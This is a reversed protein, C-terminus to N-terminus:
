QNEAVNIIKDAVEMIEREHSSIIITHKEKMKQLLSNIKKINEIDLASTPEDMLIVKSGKLIAQALVLRQRQGGSLTSGKEGIMTNLGKPLTDVFEKLGVYDIVNNIKDLQLDKKALLLNDLITGRFLLPDQPVYSVLNRYVEIDYDRIDVEGFYIDGSTAQEYRYLMKLLTSKGSGSKGRLITIQNLVITNSYSTFIDKENGEYNFTVDKIEFGKERNLPESVDGSEELPIDLITDIRKFSVSAVALSKRFEVVAVVPEQLMYAYTVFVTIVGLTPTGNSFYWEGGIGYVIVQFLIMILVMNVMAMTVYLVAMKVQTNHYDTSKKHYESTAYGGANLARVSELGNLYEQSLSTMDAAKEQLKESLKRVKGQFFSTLIMLFPLVPVVLLTLRWDLVTMVILTVIITILSSIFNPIGNSLAEEVASVDISLKSLTTGLPEKKVSAMKGYMLKSFMKDRIGVLIRNSAKYLFYEKLISLITSVLTLIVFIILTIWLLNYQYGIFVDDVLIRTTYSAGVTAVVSLITCLFGLIQLKKEKKILNYIRKFTKREM